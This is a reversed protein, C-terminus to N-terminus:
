LTHLIAGELTNSLTGVSKAIEVKLDLVTAGLSPVVVTKRTVGALKLEVSNNAM